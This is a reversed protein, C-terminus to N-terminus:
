PRAEVLDVSESRFVFLWPNKLLSSTQSGACAEDRYRQWSKRLVVVQRIPMQAIPYRVGGAVGREEEWNLIANSTLETGNDSVVM